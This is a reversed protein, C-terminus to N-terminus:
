RKARATLLAPLEDVLERALYGMVGHRRALIEGASAHLHVGWAAAQVPSAGRASLGAIIGALTDGSGCTALGVNGRRNRLCDGDPTAIFTEAGKLVMVANLERAAEVALDEAREQVEEKELDMLHAFEGAHPTLVANGVKWSRAFALAGADLVLTEPALQPALKELLRKTGSEDTLGPGVLLTAIDSCRRLAKVSGSPELVGKRVPLGIVRAEPFAVATPAAGSEALALQLKGAGARLAARGSLVVAGILEPEGGVILVTGRANKDGEEDPMPLAWRRLLAPTIDTRRARRPPM